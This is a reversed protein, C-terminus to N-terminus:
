GALKVYSANARDHKDEDLKYIVPDGPMSYLADHDPAASIHFFVDGQGRVGIFGYNKEVNFKKVVGHLVKNAKPKRKKKPAVPSKRISPGIMSLSEGTEPGGTHTASNIFM